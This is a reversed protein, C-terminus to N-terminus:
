RCCNCSPPVPIALQGLRCDFESNDREGYTLQSLSLSVKMKRRQLNRLNYAIPSPHIHRMPQIITVTYLRLLRLFVVGLVVEDVVFRARVLRPNFRPM